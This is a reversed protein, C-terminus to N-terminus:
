PCGSRDQRGPNGSERSHRHQRSEHHQKACSRGYRSQGVLLRFVAAGEGVHDRRIRRRAKVPVALAGIRRHMRDGWEVANQDAHVRVVRRVYRVEDAIEAGLDWLRRAVALSVSELDTPIDFEM